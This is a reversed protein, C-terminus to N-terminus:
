MMRAGLWKVVHEWSDANAHAAQDSLAPNPAITIAPLADGCM